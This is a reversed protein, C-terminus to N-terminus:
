IGNFRSEPNKMLREGLQPREVKVLQFGHADLTEAIIRAWARDIENPSGSNQGAMQMRISCAARALIAEEPTQERRWWRM